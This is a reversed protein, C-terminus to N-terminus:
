SNVVVLNKAQLLANNLKKGLNKYHLPKTSSILENLETILAKLFGFDSEFKENQMYHQFLLNKIKIKAKMNDNIWVPDKDDTTIYKDPVDNKFVNLITDNFSTVQANIDKGHFLM